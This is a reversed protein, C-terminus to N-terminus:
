KPYFRHVRMKKDPGCTRDAERQFYFLGNESTNTGERNGEEPKTGKRGTKIEVCGVSM